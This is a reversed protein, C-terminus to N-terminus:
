LRAGHRHVADAKARMAPVFGDLYGEVLKGSRLAPPPHVVTAGAVIVGGGGQALREFHEVDGHTPIGREVLSTGAPLAVLRNRVDFGGVRFPSFVHPFSSDM